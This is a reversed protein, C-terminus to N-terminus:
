PASRILFRQDDDSWIQGHRQYPPDLDINDMQDFWWSTTRSEFNLVEFM